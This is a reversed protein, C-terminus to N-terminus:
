SYQIKSSLDSLGSGDVETEIPLPMPTAQTESPMPVSQTESSLDSLVAGSVLRQGAAYAVVLLVFFSIARLIWSRRANRKRMALAAVLPGNNQVRAIIAQDYSLIAEAYELAHNSGNRTKYYYDRFSSYNECLYNLVEALEDDQDRYHQLSKRQARPIRRMAAVHKNFIM